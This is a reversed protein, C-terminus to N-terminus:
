LGFADLFGGMWSGNYAEFGGCNKFCWYHWSMGNAEAAQRANKTWQARKTDSVGCVKAVGFEGMNLPIHGGNLDPYAITAKDTYEKLDATAKSAYAADGSCSGDGSHSGQHSFTYPEYYHGTFIINGDAPMSVKAVQSFKAYDNGEFMITKGKSVSRIAEYGTNMIKDVADASIDHPENFVEFVLMDDAFSDFNQAIKKWEGSFESLKSTFTSGGSKAAQLMPEYHHYNIIVVLGANIAATVHSKVGSLKSDMGTYWRVPIRVSNFGAAKVKAFDSPDIPNSWGADNSSPADWSNGFNIGKGLKKNMARGKSYDVPTHAAPTWAPPVCVYFKSNYTQIKSYKTDDCAGATAAIMSNAIEDASAKVWFKKKCTYYTGANDKMVGENASTCEGLVPVLAISNLIDETVISWKGESCMFSKGSNTSKTNSCTALVGDEVCFGLGYQVGWFGAIEREFYSVPKGVYAKLSLVSPNVPLGFADDGFKAKASEDDWTGDAAIDETIYKLFSNFSTGDLEGMLASTVALLNAGAQSGSTISIDEFLTSDSPLGFALRIEKEAKIKADNFTMGNATVLTKVRAAEVHTLVNVNLSTKGTVNAVADLTVPGYSEDLIYNYYSGTASVTVYPSGVSGSLTFDGNDTSVTAQAATGMAAFSSPDIGTVSITTGKKMPGVAASGTLSISTTAVNQNPVTTIAANPDDVKIASSSSEAPTDGGGITASSSPDDSGQSPKPDDGCAWLGFSSVMAALVLYPYKMALKRM